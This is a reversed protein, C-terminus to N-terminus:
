YAYELVFYETLLCIGTFLICDTLVGTCFIWDTSINLRGTPLMTPAATLAGCVSSSDESSLVSSKALNFRLRPVGFKNFGRYCGPPESLETEETSSQAFMNLAEAAEDCDGQSVIVHRGNSQCTGSEVLEYVDPGLDASRRRVGGGGCEFISQGCGPCDTYDCVATGTMPYCQYADSRITPDAAAETRIAFVGNSLAACEEFTIRSVVGGHNSCHKDAIVETCVAGGTITGTV